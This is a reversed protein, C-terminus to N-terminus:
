FITGNIIHDIKERIDAKKPYIYFPFILFIIELKLTMVIGKCSFIKIGSQRKQIQGGHPISETNLQYYPSRVVWRLFLFSGKERPSAHGIPCRVSLKLSLRTKFFFSNELKSNTQRGKYDILIISVQIRSSYSIMSTIIFVKGSNPSLYVM